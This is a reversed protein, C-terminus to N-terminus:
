IIKVAVAELAELTIAALAAKLLCLRPLARMRFTNILIHSNHDFNIATRRKHPYTKGFEPHSAAFTTFKKEHCSHCQADTFKVLAADSAKHEGHCSNCTGAKHVSTEEGPFIHCDLCKDTMGKSATPNFRGSWQLRGMATIPMVITVALM